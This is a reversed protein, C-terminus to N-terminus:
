DFRDAIVIFRLSFRECLRFLHGTEDKRWDTNMPAIVKDYEEETYRIAEVKRNFRSFPYVEEMEKKKMWHSFKYGDDRASNNFEHWV